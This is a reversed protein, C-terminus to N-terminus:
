KVGGGLIFECERCIWEGCSRDLDDVDFMGNCNICMEQEEIKEDEFEEIDKDDREREYLYDEDIM